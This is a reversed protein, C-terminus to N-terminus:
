LGTGAFMFVYVFVYCFLFRAKKVWIWYAKLSVWPLLLLACISAASMESCKNIEMAGKKTALQLLNNVWTHINWYCKSISQYTEKRRSKPLLLHLILTMFYM